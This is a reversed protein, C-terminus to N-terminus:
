SDRAILEYRVEPTLGSKLRFPVSEKVGGIEFIATGSTIVEKWSILYEVYEGPGAEMSVKITESIRQERTLGSHTELNVAIWYDLGIGFTTEVSISKIIEQAFEKEIKIPTRSHRNNIPFREVRILNEERQKEVVDLLRAVRHYPAGETLVRLHRLFQNAESVWFYAEKTGGERLHIREIFDGSSHWVEIVKSGNTRWFVEPEEETPKARGSAIRRVIQSLLTIEGLDFFWDGGTSFHVKFAGTRDAEIVNGGFKFKGVIEQLTM